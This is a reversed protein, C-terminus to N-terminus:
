LIALVNNNSIARSDIYSDNFLIASLAFTMSLEFILKIVRLHVPDILSPKYLISFLRHHEIIQAKLYKFFSRDDYKVDKIGLCTYDHSTIKISKMPTQICFSETRVANRENSTIDQECMYNNHVVVENDRQQVEPVDGSDNADKGVARDAQHEGNVYDLLDEETISDKKYNTNPRTAVDQIDVGPILVRLNPNKIGSSTIIPSKIRSSTIIPSKKWLNDGNIGEGEPKIQIKSNLTNNLSLPEIVNELISDSEVVMPIFRNERMLIKDPSNVNTIDSARRSRTIPKGVPIPNVTLLNNSNFMKVMKKKFYLEKDMSAKDFNLCDYYYFSPLNEKFNSVGVCFMLASYM